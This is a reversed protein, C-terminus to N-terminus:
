KRNCRKNRIHEDCEIYKMNQKIVSIQLVCFINLARICTSHVTHCFSFIFGRVFHSQFEFKSFENRLENDAVAVMWWRQAGHFWGLLTALGLFFNCDFTNRSEQFNLHAKTVVKIMSSWQQEITADANLIPLPSMDCRIWGVAMLFLWPSESGSWHAMNKLLNMALWWSSNRRFLRLYRLRHSYYAREPHNVAM